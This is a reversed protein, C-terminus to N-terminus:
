ESLLAATTQLKMGITCSFHCFFALRGNAIIATASLKWVGKPFSKLWKSHTLNCKVVVTSIRGDENPLHQRQLYKRKNKIIPM